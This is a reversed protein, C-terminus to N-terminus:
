VTPDCRKLTLQLLDVGNCYDSLLDWGTNGIINLTRDLDFGILASVCPSVAIASKILHDVKNVDQTIESYLTINLDYLMIDDLLTEPNNKVSGRVDETYQSLIRDKYKDALSDFSPIVGISVEQTQTDEM